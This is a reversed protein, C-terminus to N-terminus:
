SSPVFWRPFSDHGGGFGRDIAGCTTNILNSASDPAYAHGGSEARSDAIAITIGKASLGEPLSKAMRNLLSIGSAGAGVIITDYHPRM